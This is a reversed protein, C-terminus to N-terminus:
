SVITCTRVKEFGVVNEMLVVKPLMQEKMDHILQCLHLFSQSRPDDLDEAQKSHQRTHPQCPPSMLWIDAAWDEAQDLSLKEISCCSKRKRKRSTSPPFNHELVNICLDSHDLAALRHLKHEKEAEQLAMTWGGVGAYFEVYTLEKPAVDNDTVSHCTRDTMSTLNISQSALLISIVLSSIM